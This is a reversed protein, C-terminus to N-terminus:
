RVEQSCWVRLNCPHHRDKQNVMIEVDVERLAADKFLENLEDIKRRINNALEKNLAARLAANIKYDVQM